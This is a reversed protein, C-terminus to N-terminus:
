HYDENLSPLFTLRPRRAKLPTTRTSSDGAGLVGLALLSGPLRAAAALRPRTTGSTM